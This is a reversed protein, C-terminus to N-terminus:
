REKEKRGRGEGEGERSLRAEEGSIGEGVEEKRDIRLFYM